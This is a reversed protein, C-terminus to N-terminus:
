VGLRPSLKCIVRKNYLIDKNIESLPLSLSLFMWSSLSDRIPQERCGGGVPSPAWLGPRHGSPSHFGSRRTGLDISLGQTVGAAPSVQSRLVRELRSAPHSASAAVTAPGGPERGRPQRCTKNLACRMTKILLPYCM